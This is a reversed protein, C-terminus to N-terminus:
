NRQLELLSEAAVLSRKITTNVKVVQDDPLKAEQMILTSLNVVMRMAGITPFLQLRDMLDQRNNQIQLIWDFVVNPHTMNSMMYWALAVDDIDVVASPSGIPPPDNTLRDFYDQYETRGLRPIYTLKDTIKQINTLYARLKGEIDSNIGSSWFRLAEKIEHQTVAVLRKIRTDADMDPNCLWFMQWLSEHARRSVAIAAHCDMHSHIAQLANRISTCASSLRSFLGNGYHDYLGMQDSFMPFTAPVDYKDTMGQLSTHAYIIVAPLVDEELVGWYVDDTWSNVLDDIRNEYETNPM